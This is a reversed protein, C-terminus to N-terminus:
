EGFLVLTRMQVYERTHGQIGYLDFVRQDIEEKIDARKGSAVKEAEIALATLEQAISDKPRRFIPLKKLTDIKIQAFVKGVEGTIIAYVYNMLQSNLIALIYHLSFGGENGEDNLSIGHLTNAYYHNNVDVAGILRDSTQRTLIKPREFIGSNRMWLGPRVGPGRRDVEVELLEDPKYNVYKQNWTIQYREVDRGFLLKRSSGDLPEDLFLLDAVAGQIIGDKVEAIDGLAVSQSKAVAYVDSDEPEVYINIAGDFATLLSSQVFEKEKLDGNDGVRHVVKITEDTRIKHGIIAITDVTANFAGSFDIINSFTLTSFLLSRLLDYQVNLFLRDPVVLGISGRNSTIALSREAFSSFTNHRGVACSYQSEIYRRVDWALQTIPLFPPNGIVADFRLM